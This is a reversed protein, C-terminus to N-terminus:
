EIVVPTINWKIEAKETLRKILEKERINKAREALKDNTIAPPAKILIHRAHVTEQVIKGAKDKKEPTHELVQIIHYGYPTEVVPGIDGPKQSFAALEFEKPMNGTGRRFTGLNGGREASACESEDRALESFREGKSIRARIGLARVRCKERETDMMKLLDNKEKESVPTNRMQNMMKAVRLSNTFDELVYKESLPSNRIYQEKTMGTPIPMNEYASEVESSTLTIKRKDAEEVLISKLVFQQLTERLLFDRFDQRFEEPPKNPHQKERWNLIDRVTKATIAKDNVQVAIGDVKALEAETPGDKFKVAFSQTILTALIIVIPFGLKM